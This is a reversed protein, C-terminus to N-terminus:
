KQRRFNACISARRTKVAVRGWSAATDDGYSMMVKNRCTGAWEGGGAARRRRGARRSVRRRRPTHMSRMFSIRNRNKSRQHCAGLAEDRSSHVGIVTGGGPKYDLVVPQGWIEQLKAGIMRAVTDTPGGPPFPIIIKVPGRPFDTTQSHAFSQPLLAAGASLILVPLALGARQLLHRIPLSM